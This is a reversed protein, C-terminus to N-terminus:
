VTRNSRRRNGCLHVRYVNRQSQIEEDEDFEGNLYKEEKLREQYIEESLPISIESAVRMDDMIQYYKYVGNYEEETLEIEYVDNDCNYNLVYYKKKEM